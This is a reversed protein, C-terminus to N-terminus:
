VDRDLGAYQADLLTNQASITLTGGDPMADRANVCLNLLVQHLQTPDGLVTWLGNPIMTRVQIHKLFTDNAIKEIEQVLHKIQVEMREGEIGRAFSLVHRVM